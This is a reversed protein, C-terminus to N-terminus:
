RKDKNLFQLGLLILITVLSSLILKLFIFWFHTFTFAELYFIAAHHIFVMTILYKVYASVGFSNISPSPNSGEELSIFLRIIGNRFFAILVTAFVHLGPTNSFVDITFGLVFALLLSLWRPTQVPLSLIFLVYIYPNIFGLFQVNNLVLVQALVVLVFRIINQLVVPM